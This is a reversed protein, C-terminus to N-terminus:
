YATGYYKKFVDVVEKLDDPTYRPHCTIWFSHKLIYDAGGLDGSVKYESNEYCPHKTINGAFMSRTEIGNDELYKILYPRNKIVSLPFSFWCVDAGEIWKPMILDEFKSLEKYLYYFNTKRRKKIDEVKKLQV